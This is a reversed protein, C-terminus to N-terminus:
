EDEATKLREIMEKTKEDACVLGTYEVAEALRYGGRLYVGHTKGNDEFIFIMKYSDYMRDASDFTPIRELVRLVTRGSEDVYRRKAGDDLDVEMTKQFFDEIYKKKNITFDYETHILNRKGKCIFKYGAIKITEDCPLIVAEKQVEAFCNKLIQKIKTFM